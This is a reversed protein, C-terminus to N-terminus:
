LKGGCKACVRSKVNNEVQHRIRTPKGCAPCVPRVKSAHLPAEKESFGGRTNQQTPRVARKIINVGEVVVTHKEPDVLLVKGTKGKIGVRPENTKPDVSDSRGSVVMVTDGKKVHMKARSM